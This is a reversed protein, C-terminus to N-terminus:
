EIEELLVALAILIAIRCQVLNLTGINKHLLVVIQM